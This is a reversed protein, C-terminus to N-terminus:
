IQFFERLNKKNRFRQYSFIIKSEMINIVIEKLLILSKVRRTSKLICFVGVFVISKRKLNFLLGLLFMMMTDKVFMSSLDKMNRFLSYLESKSWATQHVAKCIKKEFMQHVTIYSWKINKSNEFVSAQWVCVM